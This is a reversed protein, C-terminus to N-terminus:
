TVAGLGRVAIRVTSSSGATDREITAPDPRVAHFGIGEREVEERYNSTTAIVVNVGLAKLELALAMFPHLDGYSGVTALVVKLPGCRSTRWGSAGLAMMTIARSM